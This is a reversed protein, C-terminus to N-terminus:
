MEEEEEQEEEEEEWDGAPQPEIASLRLPTHDGNSKFTNLENNVMRRDLFGLSEQRDVPTRPRPPGMGQSTDLFTRYMDAEPGAGPAKEMGSLPNGDVPGAYPLYFDRQDAVPGNYVPDQLLHGYVVADEISAYVHSENNARSKPFHEDGPMFINGKPIYISAQEAMKKKKKRIVVCVAALVIFMLLLLGGVVGLIIALLNNSKKELTISTLLNFDGKEPLCNSTNLYFSDPVSLEEVQKEDERRSFMEELSGLTQVKISTHRDRCKPQSINTFAVNAGYQPPLLVVWSATSSPRMTNPWNPTSVVAPTGVKPSLTFIYSEAIERSFTVNFFSGQSRGLARPSVAVTVNSHIQVKSISGKPCFEGFPTGDEEAVVVSYMRQCEQGPLAQRLSDTSPLLDVTGDEPVMLHWTISQTPVPLCPPLAPLNLLTGGVPCEEWKQCGLTNSVTLELDEDICDQFFLKASTGPLVTIKDKLVGDMKMECHSGTDKKEINITMEQNNQPDVNCLVPHSSKLVSVQFNLSLGPLNGRHDTECNTLSMTFSGQQGQPQLDTLKTGITFKGGEKAYDVVVSKKLCRPATYNLFNVSYNYKSPVTFVWTMLDDDPFHGPYNASFLEAAAPQAPLKVDVVALKRIESGALVKITDPDVKRDGAVEVSLRGKYLVQVSTITGSRCFTGITLPGSRQYTIISYSLQDPCSESSRVQKMGSELFDLQFARLQPSRLDWTFTRNFEPFLPFEGLVVDGNCTTETCVINRNIEVEFTDQPQPCTFDVSVNQTSKLTLSESCKPPNSGEHSCVTCDSGTDVRRIYIATDIDPAVLMKRSRKVLPKSTIQFLSPNVNEKGLVQLSVTAKNPLDVHSVPGNRCFMETRVDGSPLTSVMTYQYQDPCTEPPAIKKLGDEPFDLGFETEPAGTLNWIFTRKFDTFLSSQTEGAAPSCSDKTCEITKQIEVTFAEHPNSCNYQLIVNEDPQLTLTSSCALESGNVGGVRCVSCEEAPLSTGLIVTAGAEPTVSTELCESISSVLLVITGLLLAVNTTSFKM